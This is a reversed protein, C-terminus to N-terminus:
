RPPVSGHCWRREQTRIEHPTRTPTPPHQRYAVRAATNPITTSALQIYDRRILCPDAQPSLTELQHHLHLVTAEEDEAAVLPRGNAGNNDFLLWRTHRVVPDAQELLLTTCLKLLDDFAEQQNDEATLDEDRAAQLETEARTCEARTRARESIAEDLERMARQLHDLCQM